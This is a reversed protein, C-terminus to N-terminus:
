PYCRLLQGNIIARELAHRALDRVAVAGDLMADALPGDPMGRWERKLLEANRAHGRYISSWFDDPSSPTIGAKEFEFATRAMAHVATKTIDAMLYQVDDTGATGVSM